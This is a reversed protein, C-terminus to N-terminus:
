LIVSLHGHLGHLVIESHGFQEIQRSDYFNGSPRGGSLTAVPTTRYLFGARKLVGSLHGHLGHLVIESLGFQEVQRSYCFNGSLRGGCSTAV